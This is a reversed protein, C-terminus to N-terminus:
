GGPGARMVVSAASVGTFRTKDATGAYPGQKIEIMELEELVEFGHGGMALLLVDGGVLVRSGLYAQRESYFDVRVKGRKILLVEQTYHVERTVRNHVHPEIVKGVPHHMYALQQSFDNPTFFQIGEADHDHTLIIALLQGNDVINEIM